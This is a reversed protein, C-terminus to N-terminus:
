QKVAKKDAPGAAAGRVPLGRELILDKARDIPIRVVGTNRDMWGYTTLSERQRQRYQALNAPENVLLKPQSTTNGIANMEPYVRGATAVHETPAAVPSVAVVATQHQFTRLLVWMLGQCVLTTVTLVVVFWVIGSYSVGDGEVPAGHGSAAHHKTDM